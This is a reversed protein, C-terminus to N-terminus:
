KDLEILKQDKRSWVCGEEVIEDEKAAQAQHWHVDMSIIISSLLRSSVSNIVDTSIGSMIFKAAESSPNIEALKLAREIKISSM